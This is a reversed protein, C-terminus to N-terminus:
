QPRHNRRLQCSGHCESKDSKEPRASCGRLGQAWSIFVKHISSRCRLPRCLYEHWPETQGGPLLRSLVRIASASSLGFRSCRARSQIFSTAALVAVLMPEQVNRAVRAVRHAQAALGSSTLVEAM